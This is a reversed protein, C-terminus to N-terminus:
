ESPQARPEISAFTQLMLAEAICATEFDALHLSENSGHSRSDPDAVATVLITAEPFAQLFEAVMPISGGQGIFEPAVGWAQTFAARAAEAYPGDFGTLSPEGTEGDSVEVKVGWPAHGYLHRVLAALAQRADDGPALRLSIKARAAPVLTNSAQSVPTADLAIVSIAPKCWLREALSGEGLWPVGDLIGSDARLRDEPYELQPARATHLGDVAVNGREDHLTALLRCLATLADPVPGGYVGSHVAHDLTRVEVVCDALGRLSTTFAPRGVAWNCSDAIVFVDAALEERYTELLPALTPSGIEEEGDIFLTVGVPPKGDFARVAALHMALGGKDDATGRGVLREGVLTAVFPETDWLSHNGEPQVDHHAYLCVTPRGDPAPFRGIVSPAGGASVLRVDPCGLQRLLEAVTEASREVEATRDPDASVSQIAVLSKLDQLIAPVETLVADRLSM